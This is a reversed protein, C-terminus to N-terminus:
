LETLLHPQDSAQKCFAVLPIKTIDALQRITTPTLGTEQALKIIYPRQVADIALQAILDHGEKKGDVHEPLKKINPTHHAWRRATGEPVEGREEAAFMFRQQAKSKFPM